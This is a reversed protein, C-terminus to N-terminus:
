PPSIRAMLRSGELGNQVPFSGSGSKPPSFIFWAKFKESNEKTKNKNKKKKKRFDIVM